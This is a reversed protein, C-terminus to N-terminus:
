SVDAKRCLLAYSARTGLPLEPTGCPANEFYYACASLAESMREIAIAAQRMTWATRADGHFEVEEADGRLKTSILTTM